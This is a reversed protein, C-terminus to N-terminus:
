FDVKASPNAAFWMRWMKESLGPAKSWNNLTDLTALHSVVLVDGDFKCEVPQFWGNNFAGSGLIKGNKSFLVAYIDADLPTSVHHELIPNTLIKEVAKVVALDYCRSAFKIRYAREDFNEGVFGILCLSAHESPVPTGRNGLCAVLGFLSWLCLCNRTILRM